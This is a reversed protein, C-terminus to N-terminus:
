RGRQYKAVARSHDALNTSFESSGDGRAVFYLYPTKPPRTVADLAAQGPLAIPTPPLGRRTYTNYPGDTKLHVKKLNGDFSDGLGYIVTPDAQLAMRVRLRNVMVGAIQDREEARGTEKEVISAMILAEYPTRYPVNAARQAWERALREQMVQYARRLVALDSSGRDFVYTDPFFLGEPHKESAGVRRLLEADSLGASDHRLVASGNLAARLQGFTSGEIMQLEAQMVEGRALKDLLQLPTAPAPIQYFGAKIQPERGLARAMLEFHLPRVSIGAQEMRRVAARLGTGAPIEFEAPFAAIRVPTTAYWAAYGAAALLGLLALTLFRRVHTL